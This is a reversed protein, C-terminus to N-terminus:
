RWCCQLLSAFQESADARWAPVAQLLARVGELRRTAAADVDSVRVPGVVARDDCEARPVQRDVASDVGRGLSIHM